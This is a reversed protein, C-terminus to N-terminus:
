KQNANGAGSHFSDSRASSSEYAPSAAGTDGRGGEAEGLPVFSWNFFHTDRSRYGARAKSTEQQEVRVPHLNNVESSDVEVEEVRQFKCIGVGHVGLGLLIQGVVSVLLTFVGITFTWGRVACLDKVFYDDDSFISCDGIDGERDWWTNISYLLVLPIFACVAVVAWVLFLLLTQFSGGNVLWRAITAAFSLGCVAAIAFSATTQAYLVIQLSDPDFKGVPMGRGEGDESAIAVAWVEGFGAAILAQGVILAICGVLSIGIWFTNFRFCDQPSAVGTREQPKPGFVTEGEKAIDDLFSLQRAIQEIILSFFLIILVLIEYFTADWDLRWGGNNSGVFPFGTWVYEHPSSDCIPRPMSTGVQFPVALFIVWVILAVLFAIVQFMFSRGRSLKTTVKHTVLLRLQNLVGKGEAELNSDIISQRTM